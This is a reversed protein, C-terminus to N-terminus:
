RRDTMMIFIYTLIVAIYCVVGLTLWEAAMQSEGGKEALVSGTKPRKWGNQACHADLPVMGFNATRAGFLM